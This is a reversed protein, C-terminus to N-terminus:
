KQIAIGKPEFKGCWDDGEVAPWVGFKEDKLMIPPNFRCVGDNMVYRDWFQCTSCKRM